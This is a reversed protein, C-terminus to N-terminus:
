PRSRRRALPHGAELRAIKEELLENSMTIEGVKAKLRALEEDREDREREKMASFAGALAKDRWESLRAATVNLERSLDELAEGRLLRQVAELKRQASFRRPRQGADGSGAGAHLARQPPASPEPQSRSSFDQEDQM